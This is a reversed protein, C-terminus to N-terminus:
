LLVDLRHRDLLRVISLVNVRLRVVHERVVGVRLVRDVVAVTHVAVQAFLYFSLLLRHRVVIVILTAPDLLWECHTLLNVAALEVLPLLRHIRVHCTAHEVDVALLLRHRTVPVRLQDLRVSPGIGARFRLGAEDVEVLHGHRWPRHGRRLWGATAGSIHNLAGPRVSM